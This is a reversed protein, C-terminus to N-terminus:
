PVGVRRAGRRLSRGGLGSTTGVFSAVRDFEAASPRRSHLHASRSSSVGTREWLTVVSLGARRAIVPSGSYTLQGPSIGIKSRFLGVPRNAQDGTRRCGVM